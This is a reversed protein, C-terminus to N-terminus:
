KVRSADAEARAEVEPKGIRGQSVTGTGVVSVLPKNADVIKSCDGRGRRGRERESYRQKSYM